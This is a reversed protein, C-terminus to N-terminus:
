LPFTTIPSQTDLGSGHDTRFGLGLGLGLGFGFGVGIGSQQDDGDSSPICLVDLPPFTM